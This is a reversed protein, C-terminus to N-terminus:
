VTRTGRKTYNGIVTRETRRNEFEIKEEDIEKKVTKNKYFDEGYRKIFEPNKRNDKTFPQVLDDKFRNQISQRYDISHKYKDPNIKM